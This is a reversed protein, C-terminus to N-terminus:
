AVLYYTGLATASPITVAVTGTSTAGVGLGPVSRSGQLLADQSSKQQDTSLYYRATSPGAAVAGQNKVTDTVSFTSRPAAAAPPNSVTTTILDPRTVRVTQTSAVCNNTEDTEIVVGPDDACALLYYTATVTVSPITVTVTGTSSVGAGLSPVSRI